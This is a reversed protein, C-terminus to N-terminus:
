ATAKKTLIAEILIVRRRMSKEYVGLFQAFARLDSLSQAHMYTKLTAADLTCYRKDMTDLQSHM